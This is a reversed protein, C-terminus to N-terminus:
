NMDPKHENIKTKLFLCLCFIHVIRRKCTSSEPTTAGYSLRLGAKRTQRGPPRAVAPLCFAQPLAYIKFKLAYCPRYATMQFVESFEREREGGGGGGRERLRERERGGEGRGRERTISSEVGTLWLLCVRLNWGAAAYHPAWTNQCPRFHDPLGEHWVNCTTLQCHEVHCFFVWSFPSTAIALTLWVFSVRDFQHAPTM